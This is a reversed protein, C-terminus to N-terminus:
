ITDLMYVWLNMLGLLTISHLVSPAPSSSSMEEICHCNWKPNLSTPTLKLLTKLPQEPL